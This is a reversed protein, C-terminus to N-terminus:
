RAMLALLCQLPEEYEECPFKTGQVHQLRQLVAELVELPQAGRPGWYIHFGQGASKGFDPYGDKDIHNSHESCDMIGAM